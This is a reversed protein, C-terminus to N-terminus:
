EFDSGASASNVDNDEPEDGPIDEVISQVRDNNNIADFDDKCITMPHVTSGSEDAYIDCTLDLMCSHLLSITDFGIVTVIVNM